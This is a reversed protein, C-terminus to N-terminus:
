ARLATLRGPPQSPEEDSYEYGESYSGSDDKKDGHKSEAAKATTPKKDPAKKSVGPPQGPAKDDEDEYESYYEDEGAADAKGHPKASDKSAPAGKKTDPEEACFAIHLELSMCYRGCRECRLIPPVTSADDDPM